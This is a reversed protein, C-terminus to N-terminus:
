PTRKSRRGKLAPRLWITQRGTWRSLRGWRRIARSLASLTEDRDADELLMAGASEPGTSEGEESLELWRRTLAVYVDAETWRPFREGIRYREVVEMLPLYVTDYWSAAAEALPVQQGHELGLFYRHGLIHDFIEDYRGLQGCELRAAPRLRDLQTRDLFGAYEAAALLEEADVHSSLPARTRVEVVHARITKWGLHSAVSVRHHGDKVFYVDGLRYVDIPPMEVGSEMLVDLRAWREKLRSNLPLFSADFDKVRGESGKIQALPIEGVGRDVQAELRAMRVVEDFSLLTRARRTLLARVENWFAQHRSTDFDYQAALKDRSLGL